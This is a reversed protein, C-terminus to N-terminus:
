NPEPGVGYRAGQAGSPAPRRMRVIGPDGTSSGSIEFGAKRYMRQNDTSQAGTTLVSGVGDPVLGLVHELLARGLGRGQRDPAVMLRGIEQEGDVLRQRVAGVLRAGQRVVYTDWTSLGALVDDYSEHLAPITLSQNALAEQVWCARQLTLLEGADDSGAAVITWDTASSGTRGPPEAAATGPERRVAALVPTLRALDDLMAQAADLMGATPSLTGCDDLVERLRVVVGDRLPVMGLATVVPVLQAVARLGGSTMGYSVFGIPKDQWEVFLYDLANKLAAPYGRNYEPTVVVFADAAATLLSWRRTHVNKYDQSGIAAEPEDLPPLNLEALDVVHVDFDPRAEAIRAFWAAIRDGVRVPRTSAVVVNLRLAAIGNTSM